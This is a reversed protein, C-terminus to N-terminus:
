GDFDNGLCPESSRVSFSAEPVSVVRMCHLAAVILILHLIRTVTRM